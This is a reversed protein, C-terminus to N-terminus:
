KAFAADTADSAKKPKICQCDDWISDADTDVAKCKGGSKKCGNDACIGLTPTGATITCGGSTFIPTLDDGDDDDNDIPDVDVDDDDDDDGDDDDGDDDEVPDVDDPTPTPKICHCDDRLDDNDTDVAKCKGGSKKCGSDKCIGLTPTGVTVTCGKSKNASYGFADSAFDSQQLDLSKQPASDAKDPKAADLALPDTPGFCPGAIQPGFGCCEYKISAYGGAFCASGLHWNTL